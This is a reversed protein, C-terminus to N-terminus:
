GPTSAKPYFFLLYPRGQLETSSILTGNHAELEFDVFPQGVSIMKGDGGGQAAAGVPAVLTLTILGAVVPSRTM